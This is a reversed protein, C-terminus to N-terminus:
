IAKLIVVSLVLGAPMWRLRNQWTCIVCFPSGMTELVPPLSTRISTGITFFSGGLGGVGAGVGMGTTLAGVGGAGGLRGLRGSWSRFSCSSRSFAPLSPPGGGFFHRQVRKAATRLVARSQSGRSFKKRVPIAHHHCVADPHGEGEDGAEGGRRFRLLRRRGRQRDVRGVDVQQRAPRLLQEDDLGAVGVADGAIHRGLH